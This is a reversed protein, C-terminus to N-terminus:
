GGVGCREEKRSQCIVADFDPKRERTRVAGFHVMRGRKVVGGRQVRSSIHNLVKHEFQFLSESFMKGGGGHGSGVTYVVDCWAAAKSM